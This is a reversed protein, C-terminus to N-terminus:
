LCLSAAIEAETLMFIYQYSSYSINHNQPLIILYIIEKNLCLKLLYTILKVKFCDIEINNFFSSLDLSNLSFLSFFRSTGLAIGVGYEVPM